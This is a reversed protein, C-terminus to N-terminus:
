NEKLARIKGQIASHGLLKNSFSYVNETNRVTFEMMLKLRKPFCSFLFISNFQVRGGSAFLESQTPSNLLSGSFLNVRLYMRAYPIENKGTAHPMRTMSPPDQTFLKAFKKPLVRCLYSIHHAIIHLINTKDTTEKM